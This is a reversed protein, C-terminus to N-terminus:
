YGGRLEEHPWLVSAVYDLFTTWHHTTWLITYVADLQVHNRCDAISVLRTADHEKRAVKYASNTDVTSQADYVIISHNKSVRVILM